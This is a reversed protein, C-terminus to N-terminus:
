LWTHGWYSGQPINRVEHGTWSMQKGDYGYEVLFGGPTRMYFSVMSDNVHRGLTRALVDGRLARDLARGVEDLTSVELMFHRLGSPSELEGIALSHQRANDPHFFHVRRGPGGDKPATRFFDSCTFGFVRQYFAFSEDYNEACPLVVHGLGMEGTVFRSVGTPSVFPAAVQTRGWCVEHTNGSPDDFTFFEEVARLACEEPTGARVDAGNAAAHELARRYAAPDLTSWGAALFTERERPVVLIRYKFDDVRLYLADGTEETMTGLHERAFTAWAALDRTGVVIYALETVNM